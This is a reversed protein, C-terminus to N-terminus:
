WGTKEAGQSRQRLNEDPLPLTQDATQQMARMFAASGEMLANMYERMFRQQLELFAAPDRLRFLEQTVRLNTQVVGEILGTLGDHLDQLGRGAVIPLAMLTRVDEADARGGETAASGDQEVASHDRGATSADTRTEPM